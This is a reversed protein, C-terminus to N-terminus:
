RFFIENGKTTACRDAFILSSGVISIIMMMIVISLTDHAVISKKIVRNLAGHACLAIALPEKETYNFKISARKQKLQSKLKEM